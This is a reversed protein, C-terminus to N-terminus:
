KIISNYDKMVLVYCSRWLHYTKAIDYGTLLDACNLFAPGKKRTLILKKYTKM